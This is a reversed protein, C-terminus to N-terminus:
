GAMKECRIRMGEDLIMQCMDADSTKKAIETLCLNRQGMSKVKMCGLSINLTISIESHCMDKKFQDSVRSCIENDETDKAIKMFCLDSTQVDVLSKCGALDKADVAIFMRCQDRIYPSTVKQCALESMMSIGLHYYCNDKASANTVLECKKLNNTKIAISTICENRMEGAMTMCLEILEYRVAVNIACQSVYVSRNIRECMGFSGNLDGTRSVYSAVSGPPHRRIQYLINRQGTDDFHPSYFEWVKKGERTVEFARGRQSETILINGGILESVEGRGGSFFDGPPDAKYEWVIEKIVPDIEVRRSWNRFNGNDFVLLNGKETVYPKHPYDLDDQGWNWLLSDSDLDVIAVTNIHRICLIVDGPGAVGIDRDLVIISNTHYIDAAEQDNAQKYLGLHYDLLEDTVLGKLMEHISHESLWNGDMDFVSIYNDRIPIKSGKHLISKDDKETLVYILDDTVWLDHHPFGVRDTDRSGIYAWLINSDKDLRILWHKQHFVFIGVIGGDDLIRFGSWEGRRQMSWSHLEVGQADIVSITQTTSSSYVNVGPTPSRGDITRVGLVSPDIDDEVHDLYGMEMLRRQPTIPISANEPVTQSICGSILLLIMLPMNFPRALPSMLYFLFYDSIFM